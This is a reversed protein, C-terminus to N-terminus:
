IEFSREELSREKDCVEKSWFRQAATRGRPPKLLIRIRIEKRIDKRINRILNM